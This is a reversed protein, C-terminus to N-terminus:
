TGPEEKTPSKSKKRSSTPSSTVHGRSTMLADQIIKVSTLGLQYYGDNTTASFIGTHANIEDPAIRNNAPLFHDKSRSGYKPLVIFTRSTLFEPLKPPLNAYLRYPASSITSCRM